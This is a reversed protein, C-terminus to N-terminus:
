EETTEIVVKVSARIDAHLYLEMDYEGISRLAGDPMLVERKIVEVGAAETIAAAIDGTGVSGFLKGEEGSLRSINITLGEIKEARTQAESLVDKAAKELEVRREEFMVLNDKTARVAKGQPVLFNRAFGNKVSVTDGLKGLKGMDELLIIDM